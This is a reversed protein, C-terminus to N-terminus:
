NWGGLVPFFHLTEPQVVQKVEDLSRFQQGQLPKESRIPTILSNFQSNSDWEGQEGSKAGSHSRNTQSENWHDFSVFCTICCCILSVGERQSHLQFALKYIFYTYRCYYSLARLFQLMISSFYCYNRLLIRM